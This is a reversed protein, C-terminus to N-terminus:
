TTDTFGLPQDPLGHNIPTQLNRGNTLITVKQAAGNMVALGLSLAFALAFRM